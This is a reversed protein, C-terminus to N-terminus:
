DNKYKLEINLDTLPYQAVFFLNNYASDSVSEKLLSFNFEVAVNFIDQAGPLNFSNLYILLALLM